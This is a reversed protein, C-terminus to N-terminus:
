GNVRRKNLEKRLIEVDARITTCMHGYGVREMHLVLENLEAIRSELASPSMTEISM